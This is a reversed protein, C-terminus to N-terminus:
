LQSVCPGIGITGIILSRYCLCSLLPARRGYSPSKEKSSACSSLSTKMNIDRHLFQTLLLSTPDSLSIHAVPVHLMRSTKGAGPLAGM